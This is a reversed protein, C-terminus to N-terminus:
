KKIKGYLAFAEAREIEIFVFNGVADPAADFHVLKGADTRGSYVAADSKSPGDVLVRLTKGVLPKNKERSIEAQEDLLRTMRASQVAPPVQEAMEAAPTGRRPSYIFAYVSDFRIRHLAALTAEYDEDTEGPFGVIVDSTIAIDPNAERLAAVISEYRAMGYRRNMRSLVADSGSQLPLHFHPEIHKAKRLVEVLADSADKPHSTMFRLLYDGEIEDLAKLLTPFDMDSRYSNVNQGLLTIDKVGSAVLARVEKIVDASPRSRERGRVYPVICYTCFNNCGYMISVSARHAGTRAVPLEELVTDPADPYFRRRGGSQRADIAEPLLGITAPTLTFDVYPYRRRLEDTRHEEASMCGCVGLLLSPNEEKQKKFSGIISLTRKEAHERIACTNFLILSADKPDAADHYGMAHAMGLLRESDAENQQCGFTLSYVSPPTGREALRLNSERVRAVAADFAEYHM